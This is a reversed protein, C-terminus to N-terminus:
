ETDRQIIMLSASALNLAFNGSNRDRFGYPSKMPVQYSFGTNPFRDYYRSGIVNYRIRGSLGFVRNPVPIVKDKARAPRAVAAGDVHVNYKSSTHVCTDRSVILKRHLREITEGYSRSRNSLQNYITPDSHIIYGVCPITNSQDFVNEVSREKM